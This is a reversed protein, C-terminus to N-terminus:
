LFIDMQTRAQTLAFHIGSAADAALRARLLFRYSAADGRDAAQLLAMLWREDFSRAARGPAEFVMDRGLAAGMHELLVHLPDTSQRMDRETRGQALMRLTELRPDFHELLEPM